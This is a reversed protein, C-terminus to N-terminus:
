RTLIFTLLLWLRGTGLYYHVFLVQATFAFFFPVHYWRLWGGFAAPTASHMMCLEIYASAAVAVGLIFLVLSVYDKREALWLSACVVALTISVGAAFIWLVTVTGM